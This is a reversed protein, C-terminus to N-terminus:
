PASTPWRSRFRYTSFLYGETAAASEGPLTGGLAGSGWGGIRFSERVEGPPFRRSVPGARTAGFGPEAYLGHPERHPM